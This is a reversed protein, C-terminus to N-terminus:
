RQAVPGGPYRGSIQLPSILPSPRKLFTLKTTTEVDISETTALAHGPASALSLNKEAIYKKESAGGCLPKLACRTRM